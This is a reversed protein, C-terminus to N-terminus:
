GLLTRAEEDSLQELEALLEDLNKEGRPLAQIPTAEAGGQQARSREVAAALGAVTPEELFSRLPLEIRFTERVRSVLQTALLSHGGLEFFNHEVGLNELGLMDRWIEALTEETPTRPRVYDEDTSTQDPAPLLRRDVKGNPTQPMEELMVFISPIMYEPLRERVHERLEKSSLTAEDKAVCYAVLRKGTAKDERAVVIASEVAPHQALTAEVEGLEIRFGRIKVQHDARGLFEINGDRLYRALDGKRYLRAGAAGGFNDPIFKEATLDPRNLYGRALNDGGICLEGAVGVPVPQQL